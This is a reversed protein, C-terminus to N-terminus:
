KKGKRIRPDYIQTRACTNCLFWPADGALQYRRHLDSTGAKDKPVPRSDEECCPRPAANDILLQWPVGTGRCATCLDNVGRNNCNDMYRTRCTKCGHAHFSKSTSRSTAM